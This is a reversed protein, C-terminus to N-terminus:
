FVGSVVIMLLLRDRERVRLEDMRMASLFGTRSFGM